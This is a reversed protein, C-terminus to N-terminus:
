CQATLMATCCVCYKMVVKSQFFFGETVQEFGRHELNSEFSLSSLLYGLRGLGAAINENKGTMGVEM